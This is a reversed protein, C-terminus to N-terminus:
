PLPAPAIPPAAVMNHVATPDPLMFSQLGLPFCCRSLTPPNCLCNHDCLNFALSLSAM